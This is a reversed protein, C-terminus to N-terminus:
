GLVGHSKFEGKFGGQQSAAQTPQGKQSTPLALGQERPDPSALYFSCSGRTGVGEVVMSVPTGWGCQCPRGRGAAM